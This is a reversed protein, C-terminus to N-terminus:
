GLMWKTHLNGHENFLMKGPGEHMLNLGGKASVETHINIINLQFDAPIYNLNITHMQDKLSLDQSAPLMQFEPKPFQEM